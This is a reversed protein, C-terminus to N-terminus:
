LAAVSLSSRKCSMHAVAEWRNSLPDYREASDFHKQKYCGGIVYLMGQCVVAACLYRATTMPAVEEWRNSVRDYREVSSLYRPNGESHFGGCVYLQGNLVAAACGRRPYTMPAVLTWEKRDPDYYEVSSVTHGKSEGGAVYFFGDVAAGTAGYRALHMPAADEWVNRRPDYRIMSALNHHNNNGGVVYLLGKLATAVCGWREVPMSAVAEWAGRRPDFRECAKKDSGFQFGGTVYLFGDLVTACAGGVNRTQSLPAVAEWKNKSLDLREVSSLGVGGVAYVFANELPVLEREKSTSRSEERVLAVRTCVREVEVKVEVQWMGELEKLCRKHRGIVQYLRSIERGLMESEDGDQQIQNGLLNIEELLGKVDHKRKAIEDKITQRADRTASELGKVFQLRRTVELSGREPDRTVEFVDAGARREAYRGEQLHQLQETCALFSGCLEVAAPDHSVNAAIAPPAPLSHEDDQEDLSGAGSGEPGDIKQRKQRNRM